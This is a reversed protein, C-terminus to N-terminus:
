DHEGHLNLIKVKKKWAYQSYDDKLMCKTWFSSYVTKVQGPRQNIERGLRILARFYLVIVPMRTM